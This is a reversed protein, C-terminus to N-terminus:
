TSWVRARRRAAVFLGAGRARRDGAVVRRRARRRDVVVVVGAGLCGPRPSRRPWITASSCACGAARWAPASAGREGCSRSRRCRGAGGAAAVAARLEPSATVLSSAAYRPWSRWSQAVPRGRRLPQRPRRPQPVAAPGSASHPRADPVPCPFAGAPPTAPAKVLPGVGPPNLRVPEPDDTASLSVWGRAAPCGFRRCAFNEALKRRRERHGGYGSTWTRNRPM